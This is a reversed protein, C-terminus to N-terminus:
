DEWQGSHQIFAGWEARCQQLSPLKYLYGTSVGERGKTRTVSPACTKLLKGMRADEHM